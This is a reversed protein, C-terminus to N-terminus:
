IISEVVGRAIPRARLQAPDPDDTSGLVAPIPSSRSEGGPKGRVHGSERDKQARRAEDLPLVESIEIKVEGSAVLEAIRTLQELSPSTVHMIARAGREAAADEPPASAITVQFYYVKGAEASFSAVAAKSERFKGNM